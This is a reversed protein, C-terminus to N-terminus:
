AAERPGARQDRKAKIWDVEKKVRNRLDAQLIEVGTVM